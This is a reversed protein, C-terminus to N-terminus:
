IASGPIHLVSTVGGAVANLLNTNGPIIGVSARMGPNTLYASESLDQMGMAVHCHLDIMGPTIWLDGLDEVRYGDPIAVETRPGVAEILGGRIVVAGNNIVGDGEFSGTVVKRALLVLGQDGPSELAPASAVTLAAVFSAAALLRSSSVM